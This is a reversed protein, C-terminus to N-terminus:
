TAPRTGTLLPMIWRRAFPDAPEGVVTPLMVLLMQWLATHVSGAASLDVPAVPYGQLLTMLTEAEEVGCHGTISITHGDFLVSM